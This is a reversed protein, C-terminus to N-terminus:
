RDQREDFVIELPVGDPDQVFLQLASGDPLANLRYPVRLDTLRREMASRGAGRFAVHDVQGAQGTACSELLHVLPRGGEGYLWHGAVPFPPRPGQCLGLVETYFARTRALQDSRLTFHDIAHIMVGDDRSM